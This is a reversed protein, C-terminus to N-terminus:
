LKAEYQKQESAPIQLADMAQQSSWKMTEMLSRINSIRETEKGKAEGRAEGKAEIRDYVECMSIKGGEIESETFLSEYRADGTMVSILQLLEQVHDIETRSPLYDEDKLRKQVFCEAVLRFDSQFKEVKERDLWAIEFLNIKYDSM